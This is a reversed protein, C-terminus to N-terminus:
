RGQDMRKKLQEVLSYPIKCKGIFTNKKFEGHDDSGGTMLLDYKQAIGSYFRIINEPCHPYYVEIGGLGARVFQPILEDVQSFMPHALVAVGGCRQILDIAEIPTQKYKPICVPRGDALYRNFAEHINRVWGKEVLLQALHPRGVANSKTLAMVEEFTINGMGLEKLKDIMKTLRELRAQQIKELQALFIGNTWERLYGLIHIDRDYIETSLEIGPILELHYDKIVTYAPELGAVTDHDTIAICILGAEIARQIVQQPSSSSDSYHTHIHLDAYQEM